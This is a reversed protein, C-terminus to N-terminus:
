NSIQENKLYEIIQKLQEESLREPSMEPYTLHKALSVLLKAAEKDEMGEIATQLRDLNNSLLDFLAKRIEASGRNKTGKQRGGTKTKGPEFM